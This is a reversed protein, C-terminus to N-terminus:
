GQGSAAPQQNSAASQGALGSVLPRLTRAVFTLAKELVVDDISMGMGENILQVGEIRMHATNGMENLFSITIDFPPIQDAYRRRPTLVRLVSESPRKGLSALVADPGWRGSRYLVVGELPSASVRPNDGGVIRAQELEDFHQLLADKNFNIFVLSGTIARRGRTYALPLAAGMVYVPAIERQVAYQIAQINGFVRNGLSAVIDAGSFTTYKYLPNKTQADFFAKGVITPLWRM